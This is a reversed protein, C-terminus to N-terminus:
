PDVPKDAKAKSAPEKFMDKIEAALDALAGLCHIRIPFEGKVCYPCLLHARKVHGCASCKNLATVDKLAKGAMQRHRKKMHSTKKKPVARLISGWIGELIGPINLQFASPIGFALTPLLPLSLQRSFLTTFRSANSSTPASLRPLFASLISRTTVHAAAM